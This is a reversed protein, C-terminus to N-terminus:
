LLVSECEPRMKEVEIQHDWMYPGLGSKEGSGWVQIDLQQHRVTMECKVCGFHNMVKGWLNKKKQQSVWDTLGSIHFNDWIGREGEGEEVDLGGATGEFYISFM